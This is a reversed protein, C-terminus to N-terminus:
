FCLLIQFAKTIITFRNEFKNTVRGKGVPPNEDDTCSFPRECTQRNNILPQNYNDLLGIFNKHSQHIRANNAGVTFKFYM